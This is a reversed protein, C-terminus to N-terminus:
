FSRGLSLGVYPLSRDMPFNGSADEMLNLDRIASHALVYGGGVYAGALWHDGFPVQVGAEINGWLATTVFDNDNFAFPGEHYRGGSLGAGLTLTTPGLRQRLRPMIAVQPLPSSERDGPKILNGLGGGVAVELHPSVVYAYEIGAEGLPTAVGVTATVRSDDAHALAPTLMMVLAFLSQKMMM